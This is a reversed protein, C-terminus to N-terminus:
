ERVTIRSGDKLEPSPHLVVRAGVEVGELIEMERDSQHGLKVIRRRAAEGSAEFLTWDEGSRFVASSPVKLVDTDQWTIVRAEVRYADALNASGDTFDLIVNTRQEEVGLASIKTFGGPEVTRVRAPLPKDGGWDEILASMGPRIKVAEETLFDAVVELRPSYGIELIPAGAALVRESQEVLRLVCGTVPSIVDIPPAKLDPFQALAAKAEEVQHSASDQRSQAAQLQNATATEASSVKEFSEQSSVGQEFLKRARQLDSAMQEYNSSARAVLADAESQSARAAELRAELIATQRPDIPAPDMRAVVQGTAICDGPHLAIRRLKGTVSAALTFRDHMRTKGEERLSEQLPGHVVRGLEVSIPKPRFAFALVLALGLIVVSWAIKSKRKM